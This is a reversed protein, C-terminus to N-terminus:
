KTTTKKWSSPVPKFKLCCNYMPTLAVANPDVLKLHQYTVGDPGPSTNECSKLKKSVGNRIFTNTNMPDTAPEDNIM